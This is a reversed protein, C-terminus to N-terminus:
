PHQVGAPTQPPRLASVVGVVEAPRTDRLYDDVSVRAGTRLDRVRLPPFWRGHSVKFAPVPVADLVQRLQGRHLGEIIPVVRTGAGEPARLVLQLESHTGERWAVHGGVVFRLHQVEDLSADIGSRPALLRREQKLYRMWPGRRHAQHMGWLPFLIMGAAALQGFAGVIIGAAMQRYSILVGAAVLFFVEILAAQIIEGRPRYERPVIALEADTEVITHVTGSLLETTQVLLDDPVKRM